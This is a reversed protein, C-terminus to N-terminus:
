QYIHNELNLSVFPNLSLVNSGYHKKIGNKVIITQSEIVKLWNKYQKWDQWPTDKISNYYGKFTMEGDITGCDHGVLIINKAGMYAAIHIASTITSFSVVIKDTGFISTDINTHGNDLHEFYYLNDHEIKNTNLKNEGSNLNGSDYESVFVISESDLSDKIFKTEKRVLYDCWIKKYAQNVGILIKDDFFTEDIFDLSKGSAIIYIDEGKHIDKFKKITEM